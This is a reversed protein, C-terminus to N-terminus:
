NKSSYWGTYKSFYNERSWKVKFNLNKLAVVDKGNKSDSYIKTLNEVTLAYKNM